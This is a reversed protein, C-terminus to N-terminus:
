NRIDGSGSEVTADTDAGDAERAEPVGEGKGSRDRFSAAEAVEVSWGSFDMIEQYLKMRHRALDELLVEDPPCKGRPGQWVRPSAMGKKLMVDITKVLAQDDEALVQQIREMGSEKDGKGTLIPGFIGSAMVEDIGVCRVQMTLGDGLDIDRRSEAKIRAALTAAADTGNDSV